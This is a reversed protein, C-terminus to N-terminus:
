PTSGGHQVVGNVTLRYPAYQEVKETPEDYAVIAVVKPYGKLLAFKHLPVRRARKDGLGVLTVHWAHVPTPTLQSPSKWGALSTGDSLTRDGLTIKGIRWGGNNRAGDSVFRLGILVKKGAYATLDYGAKVTRGSAGTLGPGLRGWTTREGTLVAFTKGGDISVTVYGYDYHDELAYATELELRPNRTPVTV